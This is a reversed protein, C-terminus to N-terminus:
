AELKRRRRFRFWNILESFGYIISTIGFLQFTSTVTEFPAVLILIGVLFILAPVIFYGFSVNGTKRCLNLFVIQQIGGLILLAGLLYMFINVFFEPMVCLWVGLLLSGLGQLPFMPKSGEEVRPRTFYGIMTVLGPIIFCVGIIIVLYKVTAEPWCTLIIGLAIAIICRLISSNVGNM